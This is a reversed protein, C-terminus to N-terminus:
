GAISTLENYFMELDTANPFRVVTVILAICKSVSESLEIHLENVIKKQEELYSSLFQNRCMLDCDLNNEVHASDNTLVNAVASAMELLHEKQVKPFDSLEMTKEIKEDQVSEATEEMSNQPGQHSIASRANVASYAPITVNTQFDSLEMTKEIEPRSNIEKREPVTKATKEMSNQPGEHSIASRTNVASCAPIVNTQFNQDSM